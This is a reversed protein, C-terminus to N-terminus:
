YTLFYEKCKTFNTKTAVRCNVVYSNLTGGSEEKPKLINDVQHVNHFCPPLIKKWLM